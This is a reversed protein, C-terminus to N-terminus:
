PHSGPSRNIHRLSRSVDRPEGLNESRSFRKNPIVSLFQPPKNQLTRWLENPQKKYQGQKRRQGHRLFGLDGAFPSAPALHDRSRKRSHLIKSDSDIRTRHYHM